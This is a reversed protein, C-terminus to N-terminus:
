GAAREGKKKYSSGSPAPLAVEQQLCNTVTGVLVPYYDRNRSTRKKEGEYKEDKIRTM